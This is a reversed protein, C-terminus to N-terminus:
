SLSRKGSTRFYRTGASKQAPGYQQALENAPRIGRHANAVVTWINEDGLIESSGSVNVIVAPRRCHEAPLEIKCRRQDFNKAEGEGGNAHARHHYGHCGSEQQLANQHATADRFSVGDDSSERENERRQIEQEGDREHTIDVTQEADDETQIRAKTCELCRVVTSGYTPYTKCNGGIYSHSCRALERPESDQHHDRACKPQQSGAAPKARRSPLWSQRSESLRTGEQDPEPMLGVCGRSGVPDAM